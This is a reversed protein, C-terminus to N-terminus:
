ELLSDALETEMVASNIYKGKAAAIVIDRKRAGSVIAFVPIRYFSSLKRLRELGISCILDSLEKLLVPEGRADVPFFMIDGVAKEEEVIRQFNFGRAYLLSRMTDAEKNDALRQRLDFDGLGLFILDSGTAGDLVRMTERLDKQSEPTAFMLGHARMSREFNRYYLHGLITNPSVSVREFPSVAIPFIEFPPVSTLDRRSLSDLMRTILFGGTIGIRVNPQLKEMFTRKGAEAVLLARLFPSNVAPPVDVVRVEDLELKKAVAGGLDVNMTLNTFRVLNESFLERLLLEIEEESRNEVEEGEALRLFVEYAERERNELRVQVEWGLLRSHETRDVTVGLLAGPRLGLVDCARAVLALSPESRGYEYSVYTAKKLSLKRAMGEQSLGRRLREAKLSAGIRSKERRGERTAANM